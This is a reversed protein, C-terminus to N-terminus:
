ILLVASKHQQDKHEHMTQMAGPGLGAGPEAAPM